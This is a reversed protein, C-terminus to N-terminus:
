NLFHLENSSLLLKALETWSQPGADVFNLCAALEEPRAPRSLTLRFLRQVKATADGGGKVDARLALAEARQEIFNSNMFFLQQLPTSTTIRQEASANPNPFDFLALTADLKRRSVFAYLTRRHNSAEGSARPTGGIRTDLEGSIALLADRMSEIDLRQRNARWLLRNDPDFNFSKASYDASLQFTASLLIERQLQKMSWGNEIFRSALWDLLEPHSPTEGMRGFNSVTRVLGQGFVHQWIRNVMVRATLPNRSSAIAEALELRGSGNKFPMPAGDSLIELFARPAEPGLNDKQGGIQIRENKPKDVDAIV